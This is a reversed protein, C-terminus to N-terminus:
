HRHCVHSQSYHRAVVHVYSNAITTQPAPPVSVTLLPSGVATTASLDTRVLEALQVAGATNMQGAGQELMNFGALPQATYM